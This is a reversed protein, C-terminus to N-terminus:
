VEEVEKKKAEAIDEIKKQYEDVMKQLDEKGKFKDDERLKGERVKEQIEGWADERWKRIVQRTQEIKESLVRLLTQRYEQTLPPLTLRVIDKDVVPSAGLQAKQLAKEIAELYSKDWPQIVIQKREPCSISGLQKIQMKQSFVDVTIDEVLSPSASGTRIKSLEKKFFDLAKDMEPRIRNIIEKYM